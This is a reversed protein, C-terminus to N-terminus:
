NSNNGGDIAEGVANQVDPNSVLDILAQALGSDIYGQSQAFVLLAIIGAVWGSAKKKSIKNKAKKVIQGYEYGDDEKIKEMVEESVKEMILPAAIKGLAILASHAM